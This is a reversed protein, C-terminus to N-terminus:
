TKKSSALWRKAKEVRSVVAEEGLSYNAEEWAAPLEGCEPSFHLSYQALM